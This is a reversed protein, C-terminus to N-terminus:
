RRLITDIRHEKKFMSKLIDGPGTWDDIHQGKPAIRRFDSEVLSKSGMDLSLVAVQQQRIKKATTVRQPQGRERGCEHSSGGSLDDVEPLPLRPVNEVSDHFNPDQSGDKQLEEPFLEELLSPRQSLPNRSARSKKLSEAGKSSRHLLRSSCLARLDWRLCQTVLPRSTPM